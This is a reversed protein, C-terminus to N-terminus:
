VVLFNQRLKQMRRLYSEKEHISTDGSVAGTSYPHRNDPSQAGYRGRQQLSPSDPGNGQQSVSAYHQGYTHPMASSTSAATVAAATTRAHLLATGELPRVMPLPHAAEIVAAAAELGTGRRSHPSFPQNQSQQQYEVTERFTVNRGNSFDASFNRKGPQYNLDPDINGWIGNFGMVAIPPASPMDARGGSGSSHQRLTEDNSGVVVTSGPSPAVPPAQLRQQRRAAYQVRPDWASPPYRAQLYADTAALHPNSLPNESVRGQNRTTSGVGAGASFPQEVVADAVATPSSLKIPKPLLARKPTAGVDPASDPTMPVGATGAPLFRDLGNSVSGDDIGLVGDLEALADKTTVAPAPVTPATAARLVTSIPAAATASSSSSSTAVAPLVATSPDGVHKTAVDIAHHVLDAAAEHAAATTTSEDNPATATSPVTKTGQRQMIVADLNSPLEACWKVLSLSFCTKLHSM